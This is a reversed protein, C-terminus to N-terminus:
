AKRKQSEIARTLFLSGNLLQNAIIQILTKHHNFIIGKNRHERKESKTNKIGLTKQYKFFLFTILYLRDVM